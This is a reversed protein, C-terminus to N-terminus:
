LIVRCQLIIGTAHICSHCRVRACAGGRLHLHVHTCARVQTIRLQEHENIQELKKNLDQPDPMVTQSSASALAALLAYHLGIHIM